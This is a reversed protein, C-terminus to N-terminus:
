QGEENAGPNSLLTICNDIERMLRNVYAKAKKNSKTASALGEQMQKLTLQHELEKVREQLERKTRQLQERQTLLQKNLANVRQHDAILQEVRQEVRQVVSQPLTNSKSVM